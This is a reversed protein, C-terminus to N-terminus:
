QKPLSIAYLLIGIAEIFKALVPVLSFLPPYSLSRWHMALQIIILPSIIAVLAGFFFMATPLTRSRWYLVGAGCLIIYDM